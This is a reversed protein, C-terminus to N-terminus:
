EAYRSSEAACHARVQEVWRDYWWFQAGIRVGFGKGPNKADLARWLSTHQHMGFRPYGEGQMVKVIQSASRKPREVERAVVIQRDLERAAESNPDIFEVVRDAQGPKGVLRRKFHLRYSYEKSDLEEDSLSGDFKAIYAALRPSVHPSVPIGEAQAQTLEMFQLSYTLYKEIGWRNGFIEKICTNFNLACAQYRGGLYADLNMSMQHEIEHRLGILFRLNAAVAGSVPCAEDSLCRELEWYKFTGRSTRRFKRRSGRQDYYRYEINEVRFYAHLLYTWAIIMLVIYSESKFKILPNNFIQVASLAAERSKTLLEVRM